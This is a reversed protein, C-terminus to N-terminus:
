PLALHDIFADEFEPVANLEVTKIATSLQEMEALAEASTLALYAGALASNGILEVQSAQFGPLLGCAIANAKNLHLGFGGAVYVREVDEPALGAQHLLVTIGAAVAAKAQLLLAIDAESVVIDIGSDNSAIYLGCGHDDTVRIVKRVESGVDRNIRGNRDLLDISRAEALVDIYATGCIGAAHSGGLVQIEPESSTEALAVHTIAGPSARMGCALSSGEFAPGAATACAAIRGEAWLAIEGNTGIDVFLNPGPHRLLGSAVVGAVVDAGVYASAGPLLHGAPQPATQGASLAGPSTELVRYGLFVPEFPVAGLGTPDSGSFLHMMTTNGAVTFCKIQASTCGAGALLDDLIPELTGSVLLQQLWATADPDAFCLDIRTVVDEGLVTQRNLGAARGLIEGTALDVLLGAVTASGLDLALGLPEATREATVVGALWHDSRYEYALNVMEDEDALREGDGVRVPLHRGLIPPVPAPDSRPLSIAHQQWLPALDPAIGIAFTAVAESEATLLSHLPIRLLSERVAAVTVQCANLWIREEPYRTSEALVRCGQCTGRGGCRTNLPLQKLRLFESLRSPDDEHTASLCRLDNEIQVRLM